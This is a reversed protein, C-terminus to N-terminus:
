EVEKIIGNDMLYMIDTLNGVFMDSTRSNENGVIIVVSLDSFVIVIADKGQFLINSYTLINPKYEIILTEFKNISREGFDPDDKIIELTDTFQTALGM